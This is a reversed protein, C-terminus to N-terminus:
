ISFSNDGWIRSIWNLLHKLIKYPRTRNENAIEREIERWKRLFVNRDNIQFKNIFQIFHFVVDIRFHYIYIFISMFIAM